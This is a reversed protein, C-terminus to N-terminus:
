PESALGNLVDVALVIDGQGWYDVAIFNPILGWEATCNNARELVVPVQNSANAASESSIPDTV